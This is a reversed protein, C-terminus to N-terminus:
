WLVCGCLSPAQARFSELVRDYGSWAYTSDIILRDLDNDIYNGMPEFLRIKKNKM